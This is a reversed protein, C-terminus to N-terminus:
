SSTEAELLHHQFWAETERFVRELDPPVDVLPHVAGFTHGAGEVAVERTEARGNARAGSLLELARM